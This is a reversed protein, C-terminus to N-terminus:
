KVVKKKPILPLPKTQLTYKRVIIAGEQQLLALTLQLSLPLQRYKPFDIVTELNLKNDYLAKKLTKEVSDIRTQLSKAM